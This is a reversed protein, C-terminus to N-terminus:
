GGTSIAARIDTLLDALDKFPPAEGWVYTIVREARRLLDRHDATAPQPATPPPPPSTPDPRNQDHVANLDASKIQPGPADRDKSM